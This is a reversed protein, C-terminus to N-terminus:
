MCQWLDFEVDETRATARIAVMDHRWDQWAPLTLGIDVTTSQLFLWALTGDIVMDAAVVIKAPPQHMGRNPVLM